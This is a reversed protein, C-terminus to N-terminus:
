GPRDLLRHPRREACGRAVANRRLPRSSAGKVGTILEAVGGVVVCGAIFVRKM